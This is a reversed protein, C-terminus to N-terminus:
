SSAQTPSREAKAGLSTEVDSAGLARLAFAIEDDARDPVIAGSMDMIEDLHQAVLEATLGAGEPAVWGLAESTVVRAVRGGGVSFTERTLTCPESALYVVLPSVWEPDLLQGQAGLISETLRTRALPAIVNSTIGYRAGEEALVRSFGVIGAKAAAYNSQGFNGFIGAVSTTHVFRGYYATRMHPLAARSVFMTGLLHVGIVARLDDSALKHLTADRLIGANNVVIDIRGFAALADDVLQQAGEESAVSSTNAMAEGGAEIIETVTRAAPGGDHGAGDTGGGVDNVLVRAGHHALLKAHAKGLGNGAGTVIAVRGTLDISGPARRNSHAGVM